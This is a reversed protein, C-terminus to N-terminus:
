GLDEGLAATDALQVFVTAHRRIEAVLHQGAHVPCAWLAALVWPKVTEHSLARATRRGGEPRDVDVGLAGAGDARAAGRRVREGLADLVSRAAVVEGEEAARQAASMAALPAGLLVEFQLYEPDGVPAREVDGCAVDVTFGLPAAPPREAFVARFADQADRAAGLARAGDDDPFWAIAADGAFTVIVGRWAQIADIVPSAAARLHRSLEEAGRADDWQERLVCALRSSGSVDAILVAGRARTPPAPAADGQRRDIPVWAEYM